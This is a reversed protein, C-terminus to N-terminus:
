KIKNLYNSENCYYGVAGPPYLSVQTTVLYSQQRRQIVLRSIQLRDLLRLLWNSTIIREISGQLMDCMVLRAPASHYHYHHNSTLAHVLLSDTINITVPILLSAPDELEISRPGLKIAREHMAALPSQKACYRSVSICGCAIYRLLPMSVIAAAATKAAM